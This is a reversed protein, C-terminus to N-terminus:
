MPRWCRFVEALGAFSLRHETGVFGARVLKDVVVPVPLYHFRGVRAERKLWAGYRLMRVSNKVYRFPHSSKFFGPIGYLALKSWAPEPINVSFVFSGGPRLVRCVDALLHDYAESTWCGREESYSEAYQIALGSVVGDFSASAFSALGASFDAHLFRIQGGTAPPHAGTRITAIARENHAACDLAIIETLRGGCKEWLTRTLQGSGCGLDLWRQGAQPELWDATDRLLRHYPPLERQSWFAKACSSKPWYNVATPGNPM